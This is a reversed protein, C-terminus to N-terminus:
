NGSVQTSAKPPDADMEESVPAALEPALRVPKLCDKLFLTKLIVCHFVEKGDLRQIAVINLTNDRQGFRNLCIPARVGRMGKAM